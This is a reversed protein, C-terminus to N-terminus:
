KLSIKMPKGVSSSVKLPTSPKYNNPPNSDIVGVDDYISQKINDESRRSEKPYKKKFTESMQKSTDKAAKKQNGAWKLLGQDKTSNIASKTPYNIKFSGDQKQAFVNYKDNQIGSKIKNDLPAKLTKIFDKAKTTGNKADKAQKQMFQGGLGDGYEIPIDMRSTLAKFEEPDLDRDSDNWYDEIEDLNDSSFVNNKDYDELDDPGDGYIDLGDPTNENLDIDENDGPKTTNDTNGLNDVTIGLQNLKKLANGGVKDLLGKKSFRDLHRQLKNTSVGSKKLLKAEKGSLKGDDLFGKLMAKLNKNGIKGGSEELNIGAKDFRNGAKSTIKIDNGLKGLQKQLKNPNYGAAKLKKADSATIKGDKSLKKLLNKLPVKNEPKRSSANSNGQQNAQREAKRQAQREAKEKAEQQAKRQAKQEAKRQAEQQAKREAQRQAQREAKRKAELKAKRQAEQQAKRKAEQQAKRKAEQQAKRKAEQQAKRKAEQQAKRQAARRAAAAQTTCCSTTAAARQQAARQQAARIQLQRARNNNNNGGRRGGGRRNGNGRRAM